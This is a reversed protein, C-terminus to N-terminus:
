AKKEAKSKILLKKACTFATSAAQSAASIKVGMFAQNYAMKKKLCKIYAVLAEAKDKQELKEAEKKGAEAVAIAHKSDAALVAQEKEAEAKWKNFSEIIMKCVAYNVKNTTKESGFIKERIKNKDAEKNAEAAELWKEYDEKTKGDALDQFQDPKVEAFTAKIINPYEEVEIEVSALIDKENNKFWKQANQFKTTIFIIAKQFTDRIAGWLKTFFKVITDWWKKMTEKFGGEENLPIGNIVAHAECLIMDKELADWGSNMEGLIEVFAVEVNDSFYKDFSGPVIGMSECLSNMEQVEKNVNKPVNIYKTSENLFLM